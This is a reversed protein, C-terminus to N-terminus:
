IREREADALTLGARWAIEALQVRDHANLKRAISGRHNDITKVSRGLVAGIEKLSMGRGTLALVKLENPTLANLAGLHVVKAEMIPTEPTAPPFAGAARRVVILFAAEPTAPTFAQPWADAVQEGTAVRATPSIYAGVEITSEAVTERDEGIRRDLPTDGAPQPTLGSLAYVWVSLQEGNWIIRWLVGSRGTLVM